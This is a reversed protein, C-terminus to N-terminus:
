WTAARRRVSLRFVSLANSHMIRRLEARLGEIASRPLFHKVAKERIARHAEEGGGLRVGGTLLVDGGTTAEPWTNCIM